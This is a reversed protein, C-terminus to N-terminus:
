KFLISVILYGRVLEIIRSTNDDSEVAAVWTDFHIQIRTARRAIGYSWTLIRAGSLELNIVYVNNDVKLRSCNAFFCPQVM